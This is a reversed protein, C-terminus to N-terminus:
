REIWYRSVVGNRTEFYTTTTKREESGGAFILFVTAGDAKCVVHEYRLVNVTPDTEVTTRSEPEGLTAVLWAESTEGLKIQNLTASTVKTGYEDISKGGMVLCGSATIAFIGALTVGVMRHLMDNDGSFNRADANESPVNWRLVGLGQVM